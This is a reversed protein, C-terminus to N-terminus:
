IHCKNLWKMVNVAIDTLKTMGAYQRAPVLGGAIM